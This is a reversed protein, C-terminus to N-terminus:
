NDGEQKQKSDKRQESVKEVLNEDFYKEAMDFTEDPQYSKGNYRVPVKKVRVKM